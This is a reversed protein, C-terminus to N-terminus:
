LRVGYLVFRSGAAIKVSSNDTLFNISAFEAMSNLLRLGYGGSLHNYRSFHAGLSRILLPTKTASSVPAFGSIDMRLATSRMSAAVCADFKAVYNAATNSYNYMTTHFYDGGNNIRAYICYATDLPNVTANSFLQLMAYKTFDVGSVNLDVQQADAVTTIDMLKVYPKANVAEDIKRNDENMDEMLFPDSLVWQNLGLNTTKNTSAM